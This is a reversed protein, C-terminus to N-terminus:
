SGGANSYIRDPSVLVAARRDELMARDYEAWNDHTGGAARFVDRLLAPLTAPDFGPVTDDPGIIEAHGEVAVWMWGSRAIITVRPDRRLHQLKVSGGRAVFAVVDDARQPHRLVGANVVSAQVGGDRRTTCVVTLYHEPELLAQLDPLSPM